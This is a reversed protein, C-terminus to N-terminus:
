VRYTTPTPRLDHRNSAGLNPKSGLQCAKQLVVLQVMRVFSGTRKNTELCKGWTSSMEACTRLLVQVMGECELEGHRSIAHAACQVMGCVLSCQAIEVVRSQHL